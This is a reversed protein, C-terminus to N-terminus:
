CYTRKMGGQMKEDTNTRKKDDGISKMRLWWGGMLGFGCKVSSSSNLSPGLPRRKVLRIKLIELHAM